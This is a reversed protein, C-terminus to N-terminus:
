RKWLWIGLVGLLALVSVWLRHWLRDQISDPGNLALAVVDAWTRGTTTAAASKSALAAQEVDAQQKIATASTDAETPPLPTPWQPGTWVDAPWGTTYQDLRYGLIIIKGNYDAEFRSHIDRNVVTLCVQSRGSQFLPEPNGESTALRGNLYLDLNRGSRERVGDANTFIGGPIVFWSSEGVWAWEDASMWQFTLTIRPFYNMVPYGRGDKRERIANTERDKEWGIKIWCDPHRGVEFTLRLPQRPLNPQFVIQRGALNDDRYKLLQGLDTDWHVAGFDPGFVLTLPTPMDEPV